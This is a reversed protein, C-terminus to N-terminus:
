DSTLLDLDLDLITACSFVAEALSLFGEHLDKEKVNYTCPLSFPQQQQQLKIDHIYLIPPRLFPRRPVVKNAASIRREKTRKTRCSWHHLFLFRKHFNLGVVSRKHEYIPNSLLLTM